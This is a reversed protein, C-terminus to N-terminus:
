LFYDNREESVELTELKEPNRILDEILWNAHNYLCTVNRCETSADFAEILRLTNKQTESFLQDNEYEHKGGLLAQPVHRYVPCNFVGLPSLVQRFYQMHCTSPQDIFDKYSGNELVRLNTSEIVSFKDTEM